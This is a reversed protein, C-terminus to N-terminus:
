TAVVMQLIATKKGFHSVKVKVELPDFNRITLRLYYLRKGSLSPFSFKGDTDTSTSTECDTWHEACVQVRVDEIPHGLRDVVTGALRRIRFPKEYRVVQYQCFAPATLLVLCVAGIVLQVTHGRM